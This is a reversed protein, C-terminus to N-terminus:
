PAFTTNPARRMSFAPRSQQQFEFRFHDLLLMPLLHPLGGSFYCCGFTSNERLRFAPPEAHFFRTVSI